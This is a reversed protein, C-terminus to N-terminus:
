CVLGQTCSSIVHPPISSIISNILESFSVAILLPICGVLYKFQPPFYFYRRSSLTKLTWFLAFIFFLCFFLRFLPKAM